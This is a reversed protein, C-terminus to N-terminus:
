GRFPEDGSDGREFRFVAADVEEEVELPQMGYHVATWITRSMPYCLLPFVVAVVAAGVLIAPIPADPLTFAFVVAIYAMLVTQTITINFFYVGLFFGEEREFRMGCGPCREAMRFWHTFLRGAGCRPCRRRAGRIMLVTWSPRTGLLPGPGGGGPEHRPESM